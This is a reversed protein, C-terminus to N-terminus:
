DTRRIQFNEFIVTPQKSVIVNDVKAKEPGNKAWKIFNKIAQEEGSIVAEVKEDRRNKIWGTIRLQQAMKRASDRFFVGQVKGSILLHVTAM